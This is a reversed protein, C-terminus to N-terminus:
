ASATAPSSGDVAVLLLKGDARQGIASRALRQSLLTAAFDENPRYIPTGDSVIRPGGGIANVIGDWAPVLTYRVTIPTGVPADAALRAVSTGRAQIIAGDPPIVTRGATSPIVDTVVGTLDTAATVKPFPRVVIEAAGSTAPAADDTRVCAHLALLRQREAPREPGVRLRQGNGRWFGLMGIREPRLTGDAAIGLSTRGSVPPHELVGNRMLVGSPHGDDLNFLDGNVGAVTAGAGLRTEMATLTERGVIAENSLVPQLSYLGGPKPATIVNLVVPGRPTFQVRKAYTVGPMLLTPASGQAFGDPAFALALAATIFLARFVM